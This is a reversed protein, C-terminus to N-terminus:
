YIFKYKLGRKDTVYIQVFKSTSFDVAFNFQKKEMYKMISYNDLEKMSFAVIKYYMENLRPTNFINEIDQEKLEDIKIVQVDM